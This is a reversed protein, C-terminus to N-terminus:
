QLKRHVCLALKDRFPAVLVLLLRLLNPLQLSLDLTQLRVIPVQLFPQFIQLSLHALFDFLQLKLDLVVLFHLQVLLVPLDLELSLLSRQLGLQGLQLRLIIVFRFTSLLCYRLVPTQLVHQV